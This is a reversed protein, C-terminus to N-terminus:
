LFSGFFNGIIVLLKGIFNEIYNFNQNAVNEFVIVFTEIVIMCLSICNFYLDVFKRPNLGTCCDRSSRILGRASCNGNRARTM